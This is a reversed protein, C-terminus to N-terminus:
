IAVCGFARTVLSISQSAWDDYNRYVEEAILAQKKGEALYKYLIRARADNDVSELSRRDNDTMRGM